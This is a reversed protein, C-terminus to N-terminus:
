DPRHRPPPPPPLKGRGSERAIEHAQKVLLEARGKIREAEEIDSRAKGLAAELERQAEEKDARAQEIVGDIWTQKTEAARLLADREETLIQIRAEYERKRLDFTTELDEIQLGHRAQEIQRENAANASAESAVAASRANAGAVALAVQDDCVDFVYLCVLGIAILGALFGVPWGLQSLLAAVAASVVVVPVVRLLFPSGRDPLSKLQRAIWTLDV